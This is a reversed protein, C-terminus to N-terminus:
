HFTFVAPIWHCKGTTRRIEHRAMTVEKWQCRGEATTGKHIARDVRLHRGTDRYGKTKELLREHPVSDFAKVIAM